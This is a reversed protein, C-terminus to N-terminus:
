MNGRLLGLEHAWVLVLGYELEVAWDHAWMEGWETAMQVALVLDLECGLVKVLKEAWVFELGVEL